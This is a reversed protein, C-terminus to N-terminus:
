SIYYKIYKEFRYINTTVNVTAFFFNICLQCRNGNAFYFTGNVREDNEFEGIFKEGGKEMKHNKKTTISM